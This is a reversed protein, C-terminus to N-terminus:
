EILQGGDKGANSKTVEEDGGMRGKASDTGASGNAARKSKGTDNSTEIRLGDKDIETGEGRVWTEENQRNTPNAVTQARTREKDTEQGLDRERGAKRKKGKEEKQRTDARAPMGLLHLAAQECKRAM